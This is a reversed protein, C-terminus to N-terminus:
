AYMHVYIYLAHASYTTDYRIHATICATNNSSIYKCTPVSKAIYTRTFFVADAIDLLSYISTNYAYTIYTCVCVCSSGIAARARVYKNYVYIIYTCMCMYVYTRTTDYTATRMGRTRTANKRGTEERAASRIYADCSCAARLRLLAAACLIYM